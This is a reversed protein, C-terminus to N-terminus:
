FYTRSSLCCTLSYALVGDPDDMALIILAAERIGAAELVDIWQKLLAPVSYRYFPHQFVIVDHALVLSQERRVDVHFDAYTQYLDHRTVHRGPEALLSRAGERVARHARSRPAEPRAYIVLFKNM